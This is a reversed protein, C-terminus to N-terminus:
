LELNLGLSIARPSGPSINNDSHANAHYSTNFLNEVNLQLGDPSLTYFLAADARRLWAAVSQQRPYVRGARVVGM